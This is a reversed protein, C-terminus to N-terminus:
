LHNHAVTHSSPISSMVEPLASLARSRQAMEGPRKIDDKCKQSLIESQLEPQCESHLGPQGQVRLSGM